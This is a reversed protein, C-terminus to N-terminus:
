SFIPSIEPQCLKRHLGPMLFLDAIIWIMWAILGLAGLPPFIFAMVISGFFLGLQKWASSTAGLYFRHISLQGIFLWIVYALWLPRDVGARPPAPRYSESYDSIGRQTPQGQRESREREQALFAARKAMMAEDNALGKAANRNAKRLQDHENIRNGFAGRSAPMADGQTLGKRGFGSM